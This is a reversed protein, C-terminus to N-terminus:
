RLKKDHERKAKLLRARVKRMYTPGDVGLGARAQQWGIEIARRWEADRDKLLQLSERIVESANGYSGSEIKDAVFKELEPPLSVNMIVEAEVVLV